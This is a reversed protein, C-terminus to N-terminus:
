ILLQGYSTNRAEPSYTLMFRLGGGGIFSTINTVGQKSKVENEIQAVV